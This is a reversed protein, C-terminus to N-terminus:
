SRAFIALSIIMMGWGLWLPQFATGLLVTAGIFLSGALINGKTKKQNDVLQQQIKELQKGKAQVVLKGDAMKQLTHFALQPAVQLAEGMEPLDERIKDIAAMPGYREKMWSELFPKATQWLDLDPYLQRGLGEINFITKQLLVLQPQVEMDFRRATNFLSLLFNGFSIEKLPKNFIPECVTRIATEFENVRTGEPVWGSEVHLEAVRKYDRNFFAIFNQALYNQDNPTLTGVIGFDIAIYKPDEPDDVNVFINGPHMDAHFFNHKFVQTFFIEVGRESLRRMNVNRQHFESVQGIPIGYVRQMVLVNKRCYDFYVEPVYLADIKEHNRRLQAGNSAERMLDLEDFITKEYESVVEIPRLRKSESWYADALKALDKLVDVDQAVLAEVGPRLVKVVVDKGDHLTAAHVQAISAAALPQDEFTAFVANLPQAFAQELIDKAQESPFPPVADQLKALELAIEPPLLDVRTSVAQGFKVFVPGLEELAERIRAGLPKNKDVFWNSPFIYFLFRVPRFLHTAKIVEILGHKVLVRQIQLLRWFQKPRIM